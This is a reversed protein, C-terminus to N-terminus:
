PQVELWLDDRDPLLETQPGIITMILNQRARTVGVYLLRGDVAQAEEEGDGLIAQPEPWRDASLRCLLVSQFEFGKASHVVSVWIGPTPSWTPTESNLVQAGPCHGVFDHADQWRRFLVATPAVAGLSRAQEVVWAREAAVEDFRVVTPPPGADAFRDPEVMDEQDAFYPMDAIAKGLAAIQPSNRFNRKFQWARSIELGASRWSIGRGYIQQAVDGFFTLSGGPGVALALSKLMQPSFDQGEDIVIHKYMREGGDAELRQCVVDALGPWDYKHGSQALLAEYRERVAWVARRGASPLAQLRGVRDAALYEPLSRVGHHSMWELESDFFALDRNLVSSGGARRLEFVANDILGRRPNDNIISGYPLPERTALYGRAFRHYNRVHLRNGQDVLVHNLYALLSKNFTVLLTRGSHDTRPDALYLARLMAM